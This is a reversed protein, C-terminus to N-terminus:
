SESSRQEDRGSEGGGDKAGGLNVCYDVSLSALVRVGGAHISETLVAFALRETKRGDKFNM